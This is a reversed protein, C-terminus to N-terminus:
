LEYRHQYCSAYCSFTSPFSGRGTEVELSFIVAQPTLRDEPKWYRGSSPALRRWEGLHQQKTDWWIFDISVAQNGGHDVAAVAWVGAVNFQTIVPSGLLRGFDGPSAFWGFEWPLRSTCSHAGQQTDRSIHRTHRRCLGVSISLQPAFAAVKWGSPRGAAMEAERMREKAVSFSM